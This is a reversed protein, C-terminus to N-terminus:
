SYQPLNGLLLYIWLSEPTIVILKSSAALCNPCHSSKKKSQVYINLRDLQNDVSIVRFPDKPNFIIKTANM